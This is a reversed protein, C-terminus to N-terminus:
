ASTSKPIKPVEEWKGSTSLVNIRFISGDDNLAFLYSFSYKTEPIAAIQIVKRKNM